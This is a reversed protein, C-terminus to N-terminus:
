NFLDETLYGITMTQNHLANDSTNPLPAFEGNSYFGTLV